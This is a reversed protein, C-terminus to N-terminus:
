GAPIEPHPQVQEPPRGHKSVLFPKLCDAGLVDFCCKLEGLVHLHFMKGPHQVFGLQAQKGM